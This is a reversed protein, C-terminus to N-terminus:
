FRWDKRGYCLGHGGCSILYHFSFSKAGKGGLSSRRTLPYTGDEWEEERVGLGEPVFDVNCVHTFVEEFVGQWHSSPLPNHADPVDVPEHRVHQQQDAAIYGAIDGTIDQNDEDESEVGDEEDASHGAGLQHPEREVQQGHVGYYRNLVEPHIDEYEDLYIGHETQGLFFIDQTLM